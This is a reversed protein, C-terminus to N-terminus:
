FGRPEGRASTCTCPKQRLLETLERLAAMQEAHQQRREQRDADLMARIQEVVASSGSASAVAPALTSDDPQLRRRKALHPENSDFPSPLLSPPTSGVAAAGSVGSAIREANISGNATGASGARAPEAASEVGSEQVVSGTRDALNNSPSLASDSADTHDPASTFSYRSLMDIETSSQEPSSTDGSDLNSRTMVQDIEHYVTPSLNPVRIKHQARIERRQKKNLEFWALKNEGAERQAEYTRIFRYMERISHMKDDVAKRSRNSCGVASMFTNYVHQSLVAGKLEPAQQNVANWAKALRITVDESWNRKTDVVELGDATPSPTAPVAIAAPLSSLTDADETSATSIHEPNLVSDLVNFVEISINPIRM